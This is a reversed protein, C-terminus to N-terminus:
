KMLSNLYSQRDHCNLGFVKMNEGDTEVDPYNRALDDLPKWMNLCDTDWNIGRYQAALKKEFEDIERRKM